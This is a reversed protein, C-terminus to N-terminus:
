LIVNFHYLCRICYLVAETLPGPIEWLNLIRGCSEANEGVKM